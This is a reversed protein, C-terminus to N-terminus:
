EARFSIRAKDYRSTYFGWLSPLRALRFASVCTRGFAIFYFSQVSVTM